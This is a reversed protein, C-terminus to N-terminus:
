APGGEAVPDLVILPIDRETAARYEDYFPMREAMVPWLRAKEAADATRAIAQFRNDKVQVTVEPNAVLNLYWKPNADSGGYSAILLYRGEHLAFNLPTTYARGSKRGTTTLLLTPAQLTNDNYGQVGNTALYRDVHAGSRLRYQEDRTKTEEPSFYTM